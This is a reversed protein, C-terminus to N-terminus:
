LGKPVMVTPRNPLTNLSVTFDSGEMFQHDFGEGLSAIFDAPTAWGRAHMPLIVSSRLRNAITAMGGISLTLGGDIPVMVIDLRGIDAYHSETLDHHLHGLHGICLGAVEFIFISNQDAFRQGGRVIDTTVNRILVDEVTLHHKAKDGEAGLKPGWGHLVHKIAPDPYDTFHTEHARNMTAVNPIVSGAWGSYDTAITIGGASEILYTSHGSFTIRVQHAPVSATEFAAYTVGPLRQAVVACTSPQREADDQVASPPPIPSPPTAQVPGSAAIGAVCLGVVSVFRLLDKVPHM